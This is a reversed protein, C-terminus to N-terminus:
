EQNNSDSNSKTVLLWLGDMDTVVLKDEKDVTAESRAQWREGHIRVFGKGNEFNDVAFGVSGVM